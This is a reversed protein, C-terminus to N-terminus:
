EGRFVAHFLNEEKLAVLSNTGGIFKGKIFIQPYTPWETIIKLKERLVEDSFINFYAYDLGNQLNLENLVELLARTFKCKPQEPTGKIFIFMQSQTVLDVVKQKYFNLERKEREILNDQLNENDYIKLGYSILCPLKSVVFKELFKKEMKRNISLDVIVTDPATCYASLKEFSQTKQKYALINNKNRLKEFSKEIIENVKKLSEPSMETKANLKAIPAAKKVVQKEKILKEAIEKEAEDTTETKVPVEQENEVSAAAKEVEIEKQVETVKNTVEEVVKGNGGEIEKQVETVKNTAEEVVKGNGGENVLKDGDVVAEVVNGVSKSEDNNRIESM